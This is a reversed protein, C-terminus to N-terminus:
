SIMLYITIMMSATALDTLTRQTSELTKQIAQMTEAISNFQVQNTQTGTKLEKEVLHKHAEFDALLAAHTNDGDGM